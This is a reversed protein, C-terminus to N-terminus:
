DNERIFEEGKDITQLIILVLDITVSYTFSSTLKRDLGLSYLPILFLFMNELINVISLQGFLRLSHSIYWSEYYTNTM